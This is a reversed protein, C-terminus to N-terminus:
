ETYVIKTQEGKKAGKYLTLKRNDKSRYVSRPREIAILSKFDDGKISPKVWTKFSDVKTWKKSSRNKKKYQIRIMNTEKRSM